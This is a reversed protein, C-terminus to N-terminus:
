SRLGSDIEALAEPMATRPTWGWSRARDGRLTGTWAPADDWVPEIGLAATVAEVYDRVTDTGTVVNVATCAGEVPGAGGVALDAAITALDGVHVWPFSQRANAHRAREQDRMAAPRLTNKRASGGGTPESAASPTSSSGVPERDSCACANTKLRDM